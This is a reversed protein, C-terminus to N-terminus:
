RIQPNLFEQKARLAELPSFTQIVRGGVTQTTEVIESGEPADEMSLAAQGLSGYGHNGISRDKHRIEFFRQGM